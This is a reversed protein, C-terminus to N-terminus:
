VSVFKSFALQEEPTCPPDGAIRDEEAFQSPTTVEEPAQLSSLPLHSVSGPKLSGPTTATDAETWRCQGVAM